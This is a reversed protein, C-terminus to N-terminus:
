LKKLTPIEAELEEPRLSALAEYIRETKLLNVGIGSVKAGVSALFLMLVAFLGTNILANVGKMPIQVAGYQTNATVNEMKVVNLVPQRAVFVKYMGIGAFFILALGLCLLLYGLIKHM